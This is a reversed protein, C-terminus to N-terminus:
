ACAAVLRVVLTALRRALRETTAVVSAGTELLSHYDGARVLACLVNVIWPETSGELFDDPAELMQALPAGERLTFHYGIGPEVKGPEFLHAYKALFARTAPM